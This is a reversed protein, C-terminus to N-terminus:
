ADSRRAAMVALLAGPVTVIAYVATHALSSWFRDDDFARRYNDLAM